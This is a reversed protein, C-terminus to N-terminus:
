SLGRERVRVKRRRPEFFVMLQPDARFRILAKNVYSRLTPLPKETRRGMEEYSCGEIFRLRAVERLYDPLRDTAGQLATLLIARDIHALSMELAPIGRGGEELLVLRRRSRLYNIYTHKCIVSVWQAYRSPDVIHIRHKDIKRYSREIVDDVDSPRYPPQQIFKILFYRTTYCYTWLDVNRKADARQQRYWHYFTLNVQEINDLHFPLRAAIADLSAFSLSHM